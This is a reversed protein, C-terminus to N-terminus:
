SNAKPKRVPTKRESKRTGGLTEIESADKGFVIKASALVASTMEALEAEAKEYANRNEGARALSENYTALAQDTSDIKAALIASNLPVKPTGYEVPTGQAKDLELMAALRTRATTLPKSQEKARFAM